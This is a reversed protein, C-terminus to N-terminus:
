GSNMTEALWGFLKMDTGSIGRFRRRRANLLITTLSVMQEWKRLSAWKTPHLLEGGWWNSQFQPSYWAFSPNVCWCDWRGLAAQASNFSHSKCLVSKKKKKKRTNKLKPASHYKEVATRPLRLTAKRTPPLSSVEAVATLVSASWCYTFTAAFSSIPWVGGAVVPVGAVRLWWAM